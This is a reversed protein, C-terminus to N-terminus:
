VTLVWYMIRSILFYLVYKLLNLIWFDSSYRLSSDYRCSLLPLHDCNNLTFDYLWRNQVPSELMPSKLLLCYGMESGPLTAPSCWLWLHQMFRGKLYRIHLTGLLDWSSNKEFGLSAREPLTHSALWRMTQRGRQIVRWVDQRRKGSWFHILQSGLMVLLWDM